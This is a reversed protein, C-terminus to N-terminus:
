LPMEPKEVTLLMPQLPQYFTLTQYWIKGTLLVYLRERVTLRWCCAIRGNARFKFKHAPLPRYQPQNSAIVVTQEPFAIPEM